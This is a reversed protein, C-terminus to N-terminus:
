WGDAALPAGAPNVCAPQSRRDIVRAAKGESRPLTGPEVLEVEIGLGTRERLAAHVREALDERDGGAECRVRM